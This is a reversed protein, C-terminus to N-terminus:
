LELGINWTWESKWQRHIGRVLLPIRNPVFSHSMQQMHNGEKCLHWVTTTKASMTLEPHCSHSSASPPLRVSCAVMQSRWGGTLAPLLCSSPRRCSVIGHTGSLKRCSPLSSGSGVSPPLSPRWPPLRHSPSAVTQIRPFSSFHPPADRILRSSQYMHCSTFPRVLNWWAKCKRLSPACM